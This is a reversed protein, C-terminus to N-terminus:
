LRLYHCVIWHSDCYCYCSVVALLPSLAGALANSIAQMTAPNVMLTPCPSTYLCTSSTHPRDRDASCLPQIRVGGALMMCTCASMAAAAPIPLPTAYAAITNRFDDKIKSICCSMHMHLFDNIFAAHHKCISTSM